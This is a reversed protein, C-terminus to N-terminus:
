EIRGGGWPWTYVHGDAAADINCLEFKQISEPAAYSANTVPPTASIPRFRRVEGGYDGVYVDGNSQDVAVGCAEGFGTLEGLMEGSNAYVRVANGNTTVYLSGEFPSNSSDVAVQGETGFGLEQGTLANSGPTSSFDDPTGDPKWRSVQHHEAEAVYI